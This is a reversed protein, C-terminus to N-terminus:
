AILSLGRALDTRIDEVAELGVSLRILNDSVGAREREEPTLRLHSTTAPHTIISRTDGLNVSLSIMECSDMVRWAQAKGGKVEFSLMGGYGRQQHTALAHQPHSELGPYYVRKVAPQAELWQAIELANECHANMRLPLTQLAQNM